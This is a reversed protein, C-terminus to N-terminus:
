RSSALHWAFLVGFLSGFEPSVSKAKMSFCVRVPPVVILISKEASAFSMILDKQCESNPLVFSGMTVHTTVTSQHSVPDSAVQDVMGVPVQVTVQPVVVWLLGVQIYVLITVWNM